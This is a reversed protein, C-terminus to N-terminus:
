NFPRERQQRRLTEALPGGWLWYNFWFWFVIGAIFAAFCLLAGGFTEFLLATFGHAALAWLLGSTHRLAAERRETKPAVPEAAEDM